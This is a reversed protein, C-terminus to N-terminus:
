NKNNEYWSTLAEYSEVTGDAEFPGSFRSGNPAVLCYQEAPQVSFENFYRQVADIRQRMAMRMITTEGSPILFTAIPNGWIDTMTIM